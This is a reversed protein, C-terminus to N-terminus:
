PTLRYIDRPFATVERVNAAGVLQAVFRELGVACGGEPPMGFRFADLYGEFPERSIERRKMVEILQEYRHERQGGTILELGRFLLDFSNTVSPDGPDPMTYFPRKETPYGEVWLFDSGHERMAWEGLWREHQPSLDPEHRCDEGYEDLIIQQAERFSVIPTSDVVPASVGYLALETSCQARIDDMMERLVGEVLTMVDRHNEIFGFELDLSIYENLHRTTAHPEARFVPGIEYVREHVGVMIQKYLQPSQALYADREFYRVPFVNAGGETAAGVIKPTFIEVFQRRELAARYAAALRAMVRLAAQKREHRLALAARDLWVDISPKLVPKNIEFPPTERVAALVEISRARLEAGGRARPEKVVDGSVRLVSEVQLGGLADAISPDDIVAQMTGSRDRLVLFVVGGLARRNLLWGAVTAQRGAHDALESALVRAWTENGSTSQEWASLRTM